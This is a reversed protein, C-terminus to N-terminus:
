AILKNGALAKLAPLEQGAAMRMMSEGGSSVHDFKERLGLKEIFSVMERGGVVSFANSNKVVAEIIAQTGQSFEPWAYLGLPGRWILSESKSIIESFLQITAPGIDYIDDEKRVEGPAFIRRYSDDLSKPGTVVDMPLHLKPNTTDLKKISRVVQDDPWEKGPSVGKVRFIAEAIKSSILIHEAKDLFSLTLRVSDFVRDGGLIVTLPKQKLKDIAEIETMLHFGGASEMFDPLQILSAYSLYSLEFAENVYIDALRALAQALVSDGKYEEPYFSLNELLVIKKQNLFQEVKSPLTKEFISHSLFSVERGSMQSIEEVWALLSTNDHINGVIILSAGEKLIYEITQRYLELSNQFGLQLVVKKNKLDIKKIHDIM